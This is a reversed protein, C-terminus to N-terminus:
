TVYSIIESGPFAAFLTVVADQMSPVVLVIEADPAVHWAGEATVVRGARIDIIQRARGDRGLVSMGPRVFRWRSPIYDPM